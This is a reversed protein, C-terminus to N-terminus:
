KRRIGRLSSRIKARRIYNQLKRGSLKRGLNPKRVRLKLRLARMRRRYRSGRKRRGHHVRKRDHRAVM